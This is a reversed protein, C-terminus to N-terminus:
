YNRYGTGVPMEKNARSPLDRSPFESSRRQNLLYMLGMGAGAGISSAVWWNRGRRGEDRRGAPGSRVRRSVRRFVSRQPGSIEEVVEGVAREDSDRAIDAQSIIGLLRGSDDTVAVRRVQHDAMKNMAIELDDHPRVTVLERSMVQDLRTTRTDSGEAVVKVTLDRDTVVGVLRQSSHDAIVPIPGVDRSKMLKAAEQASDSPVCCSPNRTMVDQCMM